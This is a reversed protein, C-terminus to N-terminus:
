LQLGQLLYCLGSNQAQIRDRLSSLTESMECESEKPPPEEPDAPDNLIVTDLRSRLQALNETLAHIEKDLSNFGREIQLTPKDIAENM